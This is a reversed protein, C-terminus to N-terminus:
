QVLRCAEKDGAACVKKLMAVGRVGDRPIGDGNALLAAPVLCVGGVVLSIIAKRM